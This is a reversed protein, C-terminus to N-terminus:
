KQLVFTDYHPLYNDFFSPNSQIFAEAWSSAATVSLETSNAIAVFHAGIYHNYSLVQLSAKRSLAVAKCEILLLPTLTPLYCLIDVRRNPVKERPQFSGLLETLKREVVILSPPYGLEEIMMSLLACRVREESTEQVHRKRIPCFIEM